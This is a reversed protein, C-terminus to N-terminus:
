FQIRLERRLERELESIYRRLSDSMELPHWDEADGMRYSNEVVLTVSYREQEEFHASTRGRNRAEVTIRIRATSVGNATEDSYVSRYRWNTNFLIDNTTIRPELFDYGRLQLIRPVRDLLDTRWATGINNTYSSVHGGGTSAGSSCGAVAIALFLLLIFGVAPKM